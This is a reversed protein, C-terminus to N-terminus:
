PTKIRTESAPGVGLPTVARCRFVYETDSMLGSVTFGGAEKWEKQKWEDEGSVCFEASYSTINEAGYRPPSIKLTVSNPSINAATVSEPKSPPEFNESVTFGDKYLYITSGKHTKDTLGATLFKTNKNEKNAEAFDSFLKAKKRMDEQVTESAYWQKTAAYHAHPAQNTTGKLYKSLASLYPEDEGLSTFVFCVAHEVSLVQKCLGTPSSVKRTNKMLGTFFMVTDIERETCNLWEKLNANSLPSSVRKQLIEALVAEDEEGGRVSPLKRAIDQQFGLKLESCMKKFAKLKKDIQSFQQASTRLADNCRVELEHFYEVVRQADDVFAANIQCALKAASSDLSTLPVMWVKLPVANEQLLRPLNQYVKVADLFCTPPKKLSFDGHFKCSFKNVTKFDEDQIKLFGDSDIISSSIKKLIGSFTNEYERQSEHESVDCDFVFFARAGYLIGTVVHTATGQKIAEPYKMNSQGLLEMSLEKFETTGEYKLTVRAQRRTKTSNQLYKASGSIKVLGFLFSAKLSLEISLASSKQSISESSFIQFDNFGQPKTVVHNALDNRDWLTMSPILSDQRCDYLKGLSFHRGLAAVMTTSSTEADM